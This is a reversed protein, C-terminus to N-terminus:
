HIELQVRFREDGKEPQIPLFSCLLQISEPKGGMNPLRRRKGTFGTPRPDFILGEGLILRSFASRGLSTRSVQCLLQVESKSEQRRSKAEIDCKDCRVLAESCHEDVCSKALRRKPGEGALM